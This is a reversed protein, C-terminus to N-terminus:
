WRAQGTGVEDLLVAAIVILGGDVDRRAAVLAFAGCNRMESHLFRKKLSPTAVDSRPAYDCVGACARSLGAMSSASLTTFALVNRM